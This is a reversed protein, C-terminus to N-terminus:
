GHPIQRRFLKGNGDIPSRKALNRSRDQKLMHVAIMLRAYLATARREDSYLRKCSILM